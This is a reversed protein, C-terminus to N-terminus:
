GRGGSHNYGLGSLLVLNSLKTFILKLQDSSVTKEMAALYESKKPTVKTKLAHESLGIKELFILNKWANPFIREWSKCVQMIYIM